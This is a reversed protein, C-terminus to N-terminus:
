TLYLNVGGGVGGRRESPLLFGTGGERIPFPALPNPRKRVAGLQSVSYRIRIIPIIPKKVCLACLPSASSRLTHLTPKKSLNIALGVGSLFVKVKYKSLWVSRWNRYYLISM